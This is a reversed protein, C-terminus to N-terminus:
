VDLALNAYDWKSVDFRADAQYPMHGSTFVLAARPMPKTRSDIAVRNERVWYLWILEGSALDIPPYAFSARLLPELRAGEIFAPGRVTLGGFFTALAAEDEKTNGPMPLIGAAPLYDFRQTAAVAKVADGRRELWAVHDQFQLFLAEGEAQRRDGIVMGWPGAASWRTMRRRVSWLDLFEIRPKASATPLAIIALPVDCPTLLSGEIQALLGTPAGGEALPDELFARLADVGCCRHAVRNRMLSLRGAIEPQPTRQRIAEDVDTLYQDLSHLRFQVAEVLADTRCLVVADDLAHNLATGERDEAPAITLVYIGEKAAYTGSKLRECDDFTRAAGVCPPARRGLLVDTASELFLTRGSRSVALGPQIRVSQGDAEPSEDSVELGWIIGYGSAQAARRDAKRRAEQERSLDQGTLLRGNFFNVSRIGGELIAEQLVKAAM